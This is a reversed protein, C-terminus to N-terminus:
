MFGKESIGKQRIGKERIGKGKVFGRGRVTKQVSKLLRAKRSM